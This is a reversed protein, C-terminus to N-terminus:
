WLNPKLCSVQCTEMLPFATPDIGFPLCIFTCKDVEFVSPRHSKFLLAPPKGPPGTTLVGHMLQLPSPTQLLSVLFFLTPLPPLPISDRAKLPGEPKYKMRSVSAVSFNICSPRLDSKGRSAASAVLSCYRFLWPHLTGPSSLRPSPLPLSLAPLPPSKSRPHSDGM